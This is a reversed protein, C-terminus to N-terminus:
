ILAERLETNERILKHELDSGSCENISFSPICDMSVMSVSPTGKMKQILEQPSEEFRSYMGGSHSIPTEQSVKYVEEIKNNLLMKMEGDPSFSVGKTLNEMQLRLESTFNEKSELNKNILM